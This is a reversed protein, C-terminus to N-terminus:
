IIGDKKLRGILYNMPRNGKTSNCAGCLLQLNSKHDTGGESDPKIHDITMNRFLFFRKCGACFCEQMGYLEHAYVKPNVVTDGNDTRVPASKCVEVRKWAGKASIIDQAAELRKKVLKEALDSVDVGIWQRNLTEAAVCATACGCFPDLIVDGEASSAKIIRELLKIPKQTPYGIYEKGRPAIAFQWWTEPIKGKAGYKAAIDRTIGYGGTHPGGDKHPIRVADNNFMWKTGKSYWFITDHKRNFQRMKPSGPGTYCWLIENRFKAKGFIADMLIKLSHSMTPDCHLYLSGTPKLVRHMELMRRAMFVLYSMSGKGNIGGVANLLTHLKPYREAIQGIWGMDIDDLTWADKFHAGAAKSGIPASYHRNSNFPPDLYILDVSESNMGELVPLNDCIFLTRNAVNLGGKNTKSM